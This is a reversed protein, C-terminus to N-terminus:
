DGKLYDNLLRLVIKELERDDIDLHMSSTKLEGEELIKKAEKKVREGVQKIHKNYDNLAKERTEKIREESEAEFESLLKKQEEEFNSIEKEM